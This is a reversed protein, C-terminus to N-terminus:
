DAPPLIALGRYAPERTEMEMEAELLAQKDAVLEAERSAVRQRLEAVRLRVPDPGPEVPPAFHPLTPIDTRRVRAGVSALWRAIAPLTQMTRKPLDFFFTCLPGVISRGFLFVIQLAWGVPIMLACFPWFAGVGQRVEKVQEEMPVDKLRLCPDGLLYVTFEANRILMSCPFLAYAIAKEAITMENRPRGDLRRLVHEELAGFLGGVFLYTVFCFPMWLYWHSFIIEFM